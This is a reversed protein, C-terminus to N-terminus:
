LNGKMKLLMGKMTMTICITKNNLIMGKMNMTVCSTEYECNIKIPKRKYDLAHREYECDPMQNKNWLKGKMNMTVCRTNM